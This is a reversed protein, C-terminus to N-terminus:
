GTSGNETQTRDSEIQTRRLYLVQVEDARIDEDWALVALCDDPLTPRLANITTKAKQDPPFKNAHGILTPVDKLWELRTM